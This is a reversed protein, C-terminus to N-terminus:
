QVPTRTDPRSPFARAQGASMNHKSLFLPPTQVTFNPENACISVNTLVLAAWFVTTTAQACSSTVSSATKIATSLCTALAIRIPFCLLISSNSLFSPFCGDSKSIMSSGSSRAAMSLATAITRSPLASIGIFPNICVAVNIRPIRSLCVPRKRGPSSSLWADTNSTGSVPRM